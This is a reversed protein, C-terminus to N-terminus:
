DWGGWRVRPMLRRRQSRWWWGLSLGMQPPHSITDGRRLSALCFYLLSGM